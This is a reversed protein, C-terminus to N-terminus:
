SNQNLAMVGLKLIRIIVTWHRATVKPEATLLPRIPIIQTRNAQFFNPSSERLNRATNACLAVNSVTLRHQSPAPLVRLLVKRTHMDKVQRYCLSNIAIAIANLYTGLNRIEFAAILLPLHTCSLSDCCSHPSVV